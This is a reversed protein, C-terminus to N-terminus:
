LFFLTIESFRAPPRSGDDLLWEQPANEYNIYCTTPDEFHYAAVGPDGHQLYTTGFITDQDAKELPSGSALDSTNYLSIAARCLPCVGRNWPRQSKLTSRLCTACFEHGCPTRCPQTFDGLCVACDKNDTSAM